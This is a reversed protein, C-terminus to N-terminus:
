NKHKNTNIGPIDERHIVQNIVVKEGKTLALDVIDRIEETIVDVSKRGVDCTLAELVIVKQKSLEHLKWTSQKFDPAWIMDVGINERSMITNKINKCLSDHLIVVDTKPPIRPVMRDYSNSFSSVRNNSNFSNNNM